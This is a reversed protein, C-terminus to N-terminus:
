QIVVGIRNLGSKPWWYRRPSEFAKRTWCEYDRGGKPKVDQIGCDNGRLFVCGGEAMRPKVAVQGQVPEFTQLYQRAFARRSVGLHQAIRSVDQPELHCSSQRCCEGCRNCHKIEPKYLTM